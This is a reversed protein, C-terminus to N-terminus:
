CRRRRSPHPEPRRVKLQGLFNTPRSLLLRLMLWMFTGIDPGVCVLRNEVRKVGPIGEALARIAERERMSFAWGDLVVDGNGCGISVARPHAWPQTGLEEQIHQVITADDVTQEVLPLAKALASMLDARSILGVLKSARM